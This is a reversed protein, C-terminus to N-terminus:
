FILRMRSANKPMLVIRTTNGTMFNALPTRMGVLQKRGERNFSLVYRDGEWQPYPFNSDEKILRSVVKQYCHSIEHTEEETFDYSKNNFNDSIRKITHYEETGTIKGLNNLIYEFQLHEVYDVAYFIHQFVDELIDKIVEKGYTNPQNYGFYTFINELEVGNIRAQIFYDMFSTFFYDVYRRTLREKEDESVKQWAYEQFFPYAILVRKNLFTILFYRSLKQLVEYLEDTNLQLDGLNCVAQATKMSCGTWHFIGLRRIIRQAKEDLLRYREDFLENLSTASDSDTLTGPLKM